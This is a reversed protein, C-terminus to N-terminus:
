SYIRVTKGRSGTFHDNDCVGFLVPVEPLRYNSEIYGDTLILVAKPKYKKTTIYDAVCSLRTGGGGNPKLLAGINPYDIPKFQQDGVVEYEWWLVRVSEPQVNGCIRSIEGLVVPYLSEMSGSTDCAVIIEGTSESYHSPMIFGSALMRKNPPCFRSQEDGECIETLFDNLYQRWNTDRKRMTADLAGGVGQKGAMKSQVIKGQQLADDIQQKLKDTGTGDLTSPKHEDLTDGIEDGDPDVLKKGQGDDQPKANQMLDKFVRVFSWGAYKPHVLPPVETPREVFALTPDAEEILGNVVYDMAINSVKPEKQVIDKYEVCHRLSKHLTEHLKLYRLQKRTMNLVFEPNYYENAGDTAATPIDTTVIVSGVCAVGALQSFEKHKSIDLSVATLRQEPRMRTYVVSDTM